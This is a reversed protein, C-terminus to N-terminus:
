HWEPRPVRAARPAPHRAGRAGARDSSPMFGWLDRHVVAERGLIRVGLAEGDENELAAIRVGNQRARHQTLHPQM